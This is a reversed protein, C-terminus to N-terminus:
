PERHPCRRRARACALRPARATACLRRESCGHRAHTRASKRFRPDASARDRAHISCMGRHRPQGPDPWRSAARSATGCRRPASVASGPRVFRRSAETRGTRGGVRREGDVRLAANEVGAGRLFVSQEIRGARIGHDGVVERAARALPLPLKQRLRRGALTRTSRRRLGVTAVQERHAGRHRDDRKGAALLHERDTLLPSEDVPQIGVAVALLEPAGAHSM